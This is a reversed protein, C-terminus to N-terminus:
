YLPWFWSLSILQAKRNRNVWLYGLFSLTGGVCTEALSLCLQLVATSPACPLYPTKGDTRRMWCYINLCCEKWYQPCYSPVVRRSGCSGSSKLRLVSTHSCFASWSLLPNRLRGAETLSTLLKLDPKSQVVTWLSCGSWSVNVESLFLFFLGVSTLNVAIYCWCLFLLWVGQMCVCM